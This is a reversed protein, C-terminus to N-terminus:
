LQFTLKRWTVPKKKYGRWPVITKNACEFIATPTGIGCRYSARGILAGVLDAPRKQEVDVAGFGRGGTLAPIVFYM